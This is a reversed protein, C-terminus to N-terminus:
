ALVDIFLVAGVFRQDGFDNGNGVVYAIDFRIASREIGHEIRGEDVINVRVDRRIQIQQIRSREQMGEKVVFVNEFNCFKLIPQCVMGVMVADPKRSAQLVSRRFLQLKGRRHKKQCGCVYLQVGPIFDTDLAKGIERIKFVFPKVRRQSGHGPVIGFVAAKCRRIM